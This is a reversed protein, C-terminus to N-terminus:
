VTDHSGTEVVSIDDTAARTQNTAEDRATIEEHALQILLSYVRALVRAREEPCIVLSPAAVSQNESM